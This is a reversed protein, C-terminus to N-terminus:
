FIMLFAPWIWYPNAGPPRAIKPVQARCTQATRPSNGGQPLLFITRGCPKGAQRLKSMYFPADPTQHRQYSKSPAPRHYIYNSRHRLAPSPSKTPLSGARQHPQIGPNVKKHGGLSALSVPLCGWQRYRGPHRSQHHSSTVRWSTGSNGQSQDVRHNTRVKDIQYPGCPPSSPSNALSQFGTYAASLDQTEFDQRTCVPRSQKPKPKLEGDGSDAEDSGCWLHM